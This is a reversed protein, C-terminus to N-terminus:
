CSLLWRQQAWRAQNSGASSLNAEHAAGKRLRGERSMHETVPPQPTGVGWPSSPGGLRPSTVGPLRSPRRLLALCHWLGAPWRPGGNARARQPGEAGGPVTRMSARRHAAQCLRDGSSPCLHAPLAPLLCPLFLHSSHATPVPLYRGM